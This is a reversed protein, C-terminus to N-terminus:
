RKSSRGRGADGAGADHAVDIARANAVVERDIAFMLDMTLWTRVSRDQANLTTVSPSSTAHVRAMCRFKGASRDFVYAVGDSVGAAFTQSAGDLIPEVRSTEVYIVPVDDGQTSPLSFGEALSKVITTNPRGALQGQELALEGLNAGAKPAPPASMAIPCKATSMHWSEHGQLAEAGRTSTESTPPPVPPPVPTANTSPLKNPDSAKSCAAFIMPLFIAGVRM